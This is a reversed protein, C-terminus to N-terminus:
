RAEYKTTERDGKTKNHHGVLRLSHQAISGHEKKIKRGTCSNWTEHVVM